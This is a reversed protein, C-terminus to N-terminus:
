WLPLPFPLPPTAQHLHACFVPATHGAFVVRPDGGAAALDRAHLTCDGSGTVVVGGAVVLCNVSFAHAKWRQLLARDALGWVCVSGDAAGSLLRAGEAGDAGEAGPQQLALCNVAQQHGGALRAV